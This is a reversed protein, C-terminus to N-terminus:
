TYHVDPIRAGLRAYAPRRGVLTPAERVGCAAAGGEGWMVIAEFQAANEKYAHHKAGEVLYVHLRGAEHVAPWLHELVYAPDIWDHEGYMIVVPATWRRRRTLAARLGTDLPLNWGRTPSGLVAFAAEGSIGPGRHISALVYEFVLRVRTESRDGFAPADPNGLHTLVYRRLTGHGALSALRHPTAVWVRHILANRVAAALNPAERPQYGGLGIPSSLVLKSVADPYRLYYAAAIHGGMSHGVLVFRELGVSRRWAEIAEIFFDQAAEPTAHFLQHFPPRSSGGWGLLDIAHVQYSECFSAMNSIWMPLGWSWAHLLLMRPLRTPPERGRMPRMRADLTNITYWCDGDQRQGDDLFAARRANAALASGRSWFVRPIRVPHVRWELHPPLHALLEHEIVRFEFDANSEGRRRVPAPPPSGFQISEM